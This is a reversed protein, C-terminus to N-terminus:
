TRWGSHLAAIGGSMPKWKVGGFGAKSIMEAFSEPQPFRRISEVLYQYSERDRAIAEGIIPILAFSYFEYLKEILPSPSPSFELCVFRGGPKLVRAAEALAQNKDTINRIGFAITCADVSNNSLPIHEADGVIHSIGHLIGKDISKNQGAKIMQESLDCIIAQGNQSGGIREFFLLAIDGTGGALDLLRMGQYPRLQDIMRNKWIRHVGISMIDNMLDYKNSVKDFIDKVLAPKAEASVNQYGFDVEITEKNNNIKKNMNRSYGLVLTPAVKDIM